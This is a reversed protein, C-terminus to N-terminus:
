AVTAMGLRQRRLIRAFGAVLAPLSSIKPLIHMTLALGAFFITLANGTAAKFALMQTSAMICGINAQEEHPLGRSQGLM